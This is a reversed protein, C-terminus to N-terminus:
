KERILTIVTEAKNQHITQCSKTNLFLIREGACCLRESVRLYQVVGLVELSCGGGYSCAEEAYARSAQRPSYLGKWRKGFEERV